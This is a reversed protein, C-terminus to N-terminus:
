LLLAAGVIGIHGGLAIPLLGGIEGTTGLEFLGSNATEAIGNSTNRSRENLRELSCLRGVDFGILRSGLFSWMEIIREVWFGDLPLKLLAPCEGYGYALMSLRRSHGRIRPTTREWVPPLLFNFLRHFLNFRLDAFIM